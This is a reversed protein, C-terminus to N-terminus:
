MGKTKGNKTTTRPLKSAYGRRTNNHQNYWRLREKKCVVLSAIKKRKRQKEALQALIKDCSSSFNLIPLYMIRTRTRTFTLSVFM